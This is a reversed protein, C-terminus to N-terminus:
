VLREKANEYVISRDRKGISIVLIVLESDVVKYVLRFGSARLKIKYCDPMGSQKYQKIKPQEQRKLLMKAFQKRVTDDLKEWEKFARKDFKVKYTV